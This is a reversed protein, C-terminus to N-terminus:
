SLVEIIAKLTRPLLGLVKIRFSIETQGKRTDFGVGNNDNMGKQSGMIKRFTETSKIFHTLDNRLNKVENKLVVNENINPNQTKEFEKMKETAQFYSDQLSQITKKQDNNLTKLKEKEEKLDDIEKQLSYCKNTLFNSDFLLSEITNELETNLPPKDFLIVEENDSNAM